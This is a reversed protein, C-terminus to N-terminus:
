LHLPFDDVTYDFQCIKYILLRKLTGLPFSCKDLPKHIVNCFDILNKKYSKMAVIFSYDIHFFVLSTVAGCQMIRPKAISLFVVIM